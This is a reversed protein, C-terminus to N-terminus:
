RVPCVTLTHDARIRITGTGTLTTLQEVTDRAVPVTVSTVPDGTAAWSYQLDGADEVLLLVARTGSGIALQVIAPRDTPATSTCGMASPIGSPVAIHQGLLVSPNAALPQPLVPVAPPNLSTGTALYEGVRDPLLPGPLLDFATRTIRPSLRVEFTLRSTELALPTPKPLTRFEGLRHLRVIGAGDLYSSFKDPAVGALLPAGSGVIANAAAAQPVTIRAMTLRSDINDDLLGMGHGCVGITAIVVAIWTLRTPGLRGSERLRAGERLLGGDLFRQLGVAAAPLVLATALYAYRSAQSQTDGLSARGISIFAYLALVGVLGATAPIASRPGISGARLGFFVLALVVASTGVVGTVGDLASSLGEIAYGALQLPEFGKSASVGDRGWQSYWAVFLVAPVSVVTLAAVLGRRAATVLLPLVLLPVSVASCALGAILVLWTVVLRVPGFRGRPRDTLAAGVWSALLSGLMGIQFAWIMNEWGIGATAMVAAVVLCVGPGAGCRRALAWVTLVVALHCLIVVAMYPSYRRVGFVDFLARWVLIPIMSPHENHPILLGTPPNPGVRRTLFDWEDVFFWEHRTRFALFLGIALEVAVLGAASLTWRTNWGGLGWRGRTATGDVPQDVATATGPRDARVTM